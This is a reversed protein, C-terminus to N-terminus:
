SSHSKSVPPLSVVRVVPVSVSVTRPAAAASAAAVRARALERQHERRAAAIAHERKKLRQRYDGWRQRVLKQVEKAERRLEQERAELASLRPDREVKAEAAWPRAAIVVLSFGFIAIAGALACIRALIARV